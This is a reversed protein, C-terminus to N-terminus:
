SIIVFKEIDEKYKQALSISCGGSLSYSLLSFRHINKAKLIKEAIRVYKKESFLHDHFVDDSWGMWGPIDFSIIRADNHPFYKTVFLYYLGSNPFSPLALVPKSGGGYEYTQIQKGEFTIKEALFKVKFM